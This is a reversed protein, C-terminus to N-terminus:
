PSERWLRVLHREVWRWYVVYAVGVVVGLAVAVGPVDQLAVALVLLVVVVGCAAAAPRRMGAVKTADIWVGTLRRYLWFLAIEAAIAVGLVIQQWPQSLGFSAVMVAMVLGFLSHYWWPTPLRRAAADRGQKVEALAEAAQERSMSPSADSTMGVAHGDSEM